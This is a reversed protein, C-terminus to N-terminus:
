IEKPDGEEPPLLTVSITEKDGRTATVYEAESRVYILGNEDMIDGTIRRVRGEESIVRSVATMTEGVKVPLLYEYTARGTFVDKFCDKNYYEFMHNSYGNTEDLISATIGGHAMMRHGEHYRSLKFVTACEGSELAYFRVGVGEKNMTGSVFGYSMMRYKAAVKSKTRTSYIKKPM